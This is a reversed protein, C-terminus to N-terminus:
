VMALVSRLAGALNAGVANAGPMNVGAMNAGPTTGSATNGTVTNTSATIAQTAAATAKGDPSTAANAPLAFATCLLATLLAITAATAAIRSNHQRPAKAAAAYTAGATTTSGATTPYAVGTVITPDAATILDAATNPDTVTTAHGNHVELHREGEPRKAELAARWEAGAPFGDVAEPMAEWAGHAMIAYQRAAPDTENEYWRYHSVGNGDKAIVKDAWAADSGAEMLWDIVMLGDGIERFGTTKDLFSGKEIGTMWQKPEKKPIVAELKDTEVKIARDDEAVRAWGADKAQQALAEGASAMAILLGWSLQAVLAGSLGM